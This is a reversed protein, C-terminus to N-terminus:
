KVESPRLNFDVVEMTLGFLELIDPTIELLLNYPAHAINSSFAFNRVGLLGFYWAVYMSGTEDNKLTLGDYPAHIGIQAEAEARPTVGALWIYACASYCEDYAYTDLGHDRISLGIMLGEYFAGGYSNLSVRKVTKLNADLLETFRDFDGVAGTDHVIPGEIFITSKDVSLTM